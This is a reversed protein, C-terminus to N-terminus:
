FLKKIAKATKDAGKASVKAAKYTGKGAVKASRTVVHQGGFSPVSVSLALVIVAFLKNM